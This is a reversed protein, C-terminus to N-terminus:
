PADCGQEGMAGFNALEAAIDAFNVVGNRDADGFLGPAGTVGFNALTSGVDGFDVFGDGNGDGLLVPQMCPGVHMVNMPIQFYQNGDIAALNVNRIEGLDYTCAPGLLQNSAEGHGAANMFITFKIPTTGPVYPIQGPNPGFGLDALDLVFEFGTTVTAPDSSPGDSCFSNRGQPVGLINDNNLAAATIPEATEGNQFAPGFSDFSDNFVVGLYRDYNDPLPGPPDQLSRLRAINGFINVQETGPDYSGARFSVWYDADFGEDFRLGEQVPPMPDGGPQFPGGMRNLASFDTGPNGAYLPDAPDRSDYILRNQGAGPNTDLFIEINTLNPELNGALFMYLQGGGLGDSEIRLYSADLESGNANVSRQGMGLPPLSNSGLGERGIITGCVPVLDTKDGGGFRGGYGGGDTLLQTGDVFHRAVELQTDYGITYAIAYDAAFGTDFQFGDEGGLGTNFNEFGANDGRIDNQGESPNTDFFLVIKNFDYNNGTVMGYLKTRNMDTPDNAITFYVANLEAGVSRHPGPTFTMSAVNDLFGAGNTTNIWSAAGYFSTEGGTISGDITVGSASPPSMPVPITVFQDGDWQNLDVDRAPFGLNNPDPNAMSTLGGIANNSMYDYSPGILIGAIKIETAEPVFGIGDLNVKFEFGTTVSGPPSVDPQSGSGPLNIRGGVGGSMMVADSNSNDIDLTLGGVPATALNFVGPTGATPLNSAGGGFLGDDNPGGNTRLVASDIFINPSQDDPNGGVTVSMWFDPRFGDDFTLGPGVVTMAVGSTGDSNEGMRILANFSVDPNARLITNQGQLAIHDIFLELKNFNTELNGAVHFVLIDDTPTGPTSNNYIYAAVGNIESGNARNRRAPNRSSSGFGTGTPTHPLIVYDTEDRLGDIVPAISSRVTTDVTVFQNGPLNAFNVNRPEGLNGPDNQLGGIVQNSLFDHGSGNIFGAVGISPPITTMIDSLRIAFEVGTEVNGPPSVDPASATGLIEYGGKGGVNSQNSQFCLDVRTANEFGIVSARQVALPAGYPNPGNGPENRSGDITVQGTTVGTVAALLTSACLLSKKM